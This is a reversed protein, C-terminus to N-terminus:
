PNCKDVVPQLRRVHIPEKGDRQAILSDCHGALRDRQLKIFPIAERGLAERWGLEFATEIHACLYATVLAKTRSQPADAVKKMWETFNETTADAFARADEETPCFLENLVENGFLHFPRRIAARNM